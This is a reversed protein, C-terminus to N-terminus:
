IQAKFLGIGNDTPRLIHYADCNQSYGAVECYIKAKRQLASELSELVLAGGGDSMIPGKRDRDFPRSGKTPDHNYANCNAGFLEM